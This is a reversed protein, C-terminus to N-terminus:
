SKKRQNGVESCGDQMKYGRVRVDDAGALLSAVAVKRKKEGTLVIDDGSSGGSRVSHARAPVRTITYNLRPRFESCSGSQVKVGSFDVRIIIADM